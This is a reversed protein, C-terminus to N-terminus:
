ELHQRSGAVRELIEVVRPAQREVDCWERVRASANRGLQARFSEDRGLSALARGLAPTDGWPVIVGADRGVLEPTGGAKDFCAIPVGQAAAEVAVLPFPDERSSLCFVDLGAFFRNPEDTSPLFHVRGDLGYGRADRKVDRAFANSGGGLWVFHLPAPSKRANPEVALAHFAGQIWWDAGKRAEMTGCGGVMVANEPAGIRARLEQRAAERDTKLRAFDTWEYITEVFEPAIGQGQTLEDRVANSAAIFFAGRARLFAWGVRSQELAGALEHVHVLLKAGRRLVPELARVAEGSAASNAYVLDFRPASRAASRALRGQLRIASAIAREIQERRPLEGEGVRRKAAGLMTATQFPRSPALPAAYLAFERELPGRRASIISAEIQTNRRLFRLLDLLVLPAGSRNAAHSVFLIRM